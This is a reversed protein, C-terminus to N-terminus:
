RNEWGVPIKSHDQVWTSYEQKTMKIYTYLRDNSSGAHWADIKDDIVENLEAIRNDSRSM